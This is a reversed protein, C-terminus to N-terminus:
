ALKLPLEVFFTTGKGEESEFRVDGGQAKIAGMSVHLGLGNGEKGANSARYLEKFINGQDNKPIGIGTDKVKCLFTQDKIEVTFEVEGGEAKLATYKVANSLLNDIALQTYKRDLNATPLPTAPLSVKLLVKREKAHNQAEEVIEKLLANLDVPALEIPM